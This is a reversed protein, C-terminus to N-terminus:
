GRNRSRFWRTAAAALFGGAAGIGVAKAAGSAGRKPPLAEEAPPDAPAAEPKEAEAGGEPPADARPDQDADPSFTVHVREQPMREEVKASSRMTAKDGETLPPQMLSRPWLKRVRVVNIEASMITLQAGLFIWALLGIVFGFFGYVETAHKVQHNMYYSGGAQLLAWLVAGVAAGPLVDRYSVDRDTLIKFAILFLIFNLVVSGSFGVVRLAVGLSGEFTGLGSMITSALTIGGLLILMILGRLRSELFNPRAKMPVDWIDNMANQAAQTVGLGAWLATVTGIGVAVGSKLAHVNNRIQDGIVPFQSLASDVIKEQLEPNGHLVFGLISVLVLLLPFISFFGYYAILAALHGARDDGFKKVVAFPFALWRKTQQYDDVRRITRELANM